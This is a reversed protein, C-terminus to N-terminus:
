SNCYKPDIGKRKCILSNVDVERREKTKNKYFKMTFVCRSCHVFKILCEQMKKVNESVSMFTLLKM